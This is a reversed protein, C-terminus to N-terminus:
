GTRPQQRAFPGAAIAGAAFAAAATTATAACLLLTSTYGFSSISAGALIGSVLAGATSANSFLTTARGTAPAMLDQFFRIGAAGVVAIAIGRAAQGVVLLTMGHALVTVVFYLVFTAMGTLILARQSIRTPMAVLALAALVEVFACASYLVGVASAPEHLGRTVYLPLAVSGAYMATFFLTISGTLLMVALVTPTADSPLDPRQDAQRERAQQPAPVAIAVLLSTVTLLGAAAWLITAFGTRTLMAAGILPGIAWALSWASRLLPASRQGTRGNGLIVRAMSFLQPFAAAQSGLLTAALIVLVPFSTTRTMLALGVGALATVVVTYSRMPKRDFRRGLLWSVAIGGVAPASALVGVQVPNLGAVDTAFLVIYSGVMSDAIGLLLIAAALPALSRRLPPPGPAPERRSEADTAM